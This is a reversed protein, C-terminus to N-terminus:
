RCCLTVPQEPVVSGDPAPQSPMCSTGNAPPAYRASNSASTDSCSGSPSVTSDPAGSCSFDAFFQYSGGACLNGPPPTCSCPECGRGDVGAGYSKIKLGGQWGTPCGAIDGEYKICIMVDDKDVCTETSDCAGGPLEKTACLSHEDSWMSPLDAALGGGSPDCGVAAVTPQMTQVSNTTLAAIGVLECGGGLNFSGSAGVCGSASFAQIQANCELQLSGCGCAACQAMADSPGSHFRTPPTQDACQAPGAGPATSYLSFYGQWGAPVEALCVGDGDLCIEPAPGSGISVDGGAGSGNGGGGAAAGIGGAGGSSITTTTAAVETSETRYDDFGHIVQCSAGLM